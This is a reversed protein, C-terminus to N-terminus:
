LFCWKWRVHLCIIVEDDELSWKLKTNNGVQSSTAFYLSIRSSGRRISTTVKTTYADMLVTYDQTSIPRLHNIAIDDVWEYTWSCTVSLCSMICHHSQYQHKLTTFFNCLLIYNRHRLVCENHLKTRIMLVWTSDETQQQLALESQLICTTTMATFYAYM